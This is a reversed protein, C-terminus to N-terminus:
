FCLAKEHLTKSFIQITIYNEKLKPVSINKIVTLTKHSIIYLRSLNLCDVPVFRPGFVISEEM